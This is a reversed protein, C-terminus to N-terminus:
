NSYQHHDVTLNHVLPGTSNISAPQAVWQSPAVGNPRNIFRGCEANQM